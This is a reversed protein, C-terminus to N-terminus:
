KTTFTTSSFSVGAACPGTNNPVSLRVAYTTDAALPGFTARYIPGGYGTPTAIPSPYPTPAVGQPIVAVPGGHSSTLYLTGLTSAAYLLEGVHDPVNTAGNEPYVIIPAEEAVPACVGESNKTTCATFATMVALLAPASRRVTLANFRLM